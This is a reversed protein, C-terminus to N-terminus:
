RDEISPDDITTVHSGGVTAPITTSLPAQAGTEPVFKGSPSDVTVQVASSDANALAQENETVMVAGLRRKVLNM